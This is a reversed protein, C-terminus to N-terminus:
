SVSISSTDQKIYCAGIKYYKNLFLSEENRWKHRLIAKSICKLELHLEM